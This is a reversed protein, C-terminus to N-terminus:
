IEHQVANVKGNGVKLNVTNGEVKSCIKRVFSEFLVKAAPAKGGLGVGVCV